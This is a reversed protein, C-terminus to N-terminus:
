RVVDALFPLERQFGVLDDRRDQAEAIVRQYGIFQLQEVALVEPIIAPELEM